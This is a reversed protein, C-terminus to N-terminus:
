ALFHTKNDLVDASKSNHETNRRQILKMMRCYATITATNQSCRRNHDPSRNEDTLSEPVQWLVGLEPKGSNQWVFVRDLDMSRSFVAM